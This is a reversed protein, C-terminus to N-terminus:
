SDYDADILIVDKDFAIRKLRQGDASLQSRIERAYNQKDESEIYLQSGVGRTPEEKFEAKSAVIILKQNQHTVNGIQMGSTVLGASDRQVSIALDLDNSLLIGKNKSM